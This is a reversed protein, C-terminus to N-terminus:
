RATPQSAPPASTITTQPAVGDSTRGDILYVTGQQPTNPAGIALEPRGDGTLDGPAGVATGAIEGAAAGDYRRGEFGLRDLDIPHTNNQKLRM